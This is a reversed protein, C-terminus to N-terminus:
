RQLGLCHFYDGNKALVTITDDSQVLVTISDSDQVFAIIREGNQVLVTIVDSDQNFAIFADDSQVLVTFPSRIVASTYLSSIM